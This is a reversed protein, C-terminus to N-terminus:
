NFYRSKTLQNFFSKIYCLLTSRLLLASQVRHQKQSFFFTFNYQMRQKRLLSGETNFYIRTIDLSFHKCFFPNMNMNLPYYFRSLPSFIFVSVYISYDLFRQFRFRKVTLFRADTLYRLTERLLTYRLSDIKLFSTTLFYHPLQYCNELSSM